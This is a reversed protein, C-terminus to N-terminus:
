DRFFMWHPRTIKKWENFGELLQQGRQKVGPRTIWNNLADGDFAIFVGEGRNEIAPLWSVELALSARSVGLSLEGDIDPSASEFRTFGVQAVVERLRHVLVLRSIKSLYGTRPEKLPFRRAFFDVEPQDDGIELQSAQLMEIEAQKISKKEEETGGKRRKIEAMVQDDSFDQLVAFVKAKRRERQLDELSDVYLLYDEWVPDIAKRLLSDRDPISIVSLVQPFYANSASRVLLRNIERIGNPGGCPEQSVAGLWPRLGKCHGLPKQPIEAAEALSRAPAGCECRVFVDALDGSTGREDIWLPRRCSTRTKHAFEYWDIDSIHGNVCAQVFRIPSVAYKKKDRGQFQNKVLAECNLLPRARFQKDEGWPEEYQAVFWEPFLWATIGTKSSSAQAAAMPWGACAVEVNASIM